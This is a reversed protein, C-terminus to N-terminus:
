RILYNWIGCCNALTFFANMILMHRYKKLHSWWMGTLSAVMYAVWGWHYENSVMLAGLISLYAIVQELRNLHKFSLQTWNV